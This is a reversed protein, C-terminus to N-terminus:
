TNEKDQLIEEIIKDFIVSNRDDEITVIGKFDSSTTIDIIKERPYDRRSSNAQSFETFITM